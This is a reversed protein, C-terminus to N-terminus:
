IVLAVRFRPEEGGEALQVEKRGEEEEGEEVPGSKAEEEGGADEEDESRQEGGQWAEEGAVGGENLGGLEDAKGAGGLRDGVVM